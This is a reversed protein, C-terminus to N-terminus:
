GDRKNSGYIIKLGKLTLFSDTKDIKNCYPSILGLFGGTSVVIPKKGIENSIKDILTDTLGALGFIFGSSISDKTNSGIAKGAKELRIDYLQAAKEFLGNVSTEVGPGIAGGLYAGENSVVDFTTATGFDVVIAPIGYLSKVAVANAIRDSGVAEPYEYEIEIVKHKISDVNLVKKGIKKGIEVMAHSIEPVVSCFVFGSIDDIKSKEVQFLNNIVLFLEDTTSNKNTPLRWHYKLSDDSFLGIVTHTNGVDIALLM